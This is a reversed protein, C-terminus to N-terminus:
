IWLNTYLLFNIITNMLEMPVITYSSFFRDCTTHEMGQFVDIATAHYLKGGNKTAPLEGKNSAQMGQIRIVLNALSNNKKNNKM